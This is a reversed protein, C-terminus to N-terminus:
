GTGEKLRSQGSSTTGLCYYDGQPEVQLPQASTSFYRADHGRKRLNDRLALGLLEAGGTPTAYDNILLIKM